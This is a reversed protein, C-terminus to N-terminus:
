VTPLFAREKKAKSRMDFSHRYLSIIVGWFMLLIPSEYSHVFFMTFIMILVITKYGKLTSPVKIIASGILFLLLLFATNLFIVFLECVTLAFGLFLM